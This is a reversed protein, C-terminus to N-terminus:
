VLVFEMVHRRKSEPQPEPSDERHGLSRYSVGDANLRTQRFSLSGLDRRAHIDVTSSHSVNGDDARVKYYIAEPDYWQGLLAEVRYQTGDLSFRFRVNM